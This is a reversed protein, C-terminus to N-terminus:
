AAIHATLALMGNDRREWILVSEEGYGFKPACRNCYRRDQPLRNRKFEAGCLHRAVYKSLPAVYGHGLGAPTPVAGLERAKAKWVRDHHHKGGVIAHAIEHYITDLVQERDNIETIPKSLELRKFPVIRRNEDYRLPRTMGAYRVSRSWGFSWDPLLGNEDMKELTLTRAENLDM